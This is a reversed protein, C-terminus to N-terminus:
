TLVTHSLPPLSMAWSLLGAERWMSMRMWKQRWCRIHDGVKHGFLGLTQCMFTVASAREAVLV